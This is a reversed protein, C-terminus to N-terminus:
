RGSSRGAPFTRNLLLAIGLPILVLFPVSAVVFIATARM